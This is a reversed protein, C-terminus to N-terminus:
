RVCQQRHDLQQEVRGVRWESQLGQVSGRAHSESIPGNNWGVLGGVSNRHRDRRRQCHEASRISATALDTPTRGSWVASVGLALCEPAAPMAIPNPRQEMRGIWRRLESAEVLGSATSWTIANLGVALGNWADDDYSSGVLGGVTQSGSVTGTAHSSSIPGNNWGVLGGVSYGTGTVAGSATSGSIKNVGDAGYNSGVLGGVTASGNVDGAARSGSIPGNNWGVLGGVLDGTGTVAGGATSGSIRNVGDAGYNSGVLGGVYTAGDVDGTAHSSSIPGNNWGVLGGVLNGTGTM